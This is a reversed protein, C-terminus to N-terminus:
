YLIQGTFHSEQCNQTHIHTLSHSLSPPLINACIGINNNYNEYYLIFMKFYLKWSKSLHVDICVCTIAVAAPHLVNKHRRYIGDNLDGTLENVRLPLRQESKCRVDTASNQRNRLRMSHSDWRNEHTQGRTSLTKKHTSWCNGKETSLLTGNFLGCDM